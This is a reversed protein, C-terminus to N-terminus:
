DTSRNTDVHPKPSIQVPTSVNTRDQIQQCRNGGAMFRKCVDPRNEYDSCRNSDDLYGCRGNMQYYEQDGQLASLTIGIEILSERFRQDDSFREYLIRLADARADFTVRNDQIDRVIFQGLVIELDTGGARLHKAEDKSLIM